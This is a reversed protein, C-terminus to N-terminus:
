QEPDLGTAAFANVAREINDLIVQHVHRSLFRGQQGFVIM